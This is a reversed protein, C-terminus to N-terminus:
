EIRWCRFGDETKRVTFKKHHYRGFGHISNVMGSKPLVFSQGVELKHLAISLPTKSGGGRGVPPPPIDSDVKIEDSM